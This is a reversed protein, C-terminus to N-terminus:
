DLVIPDGTKARPRFMTQPVPEDQTLVKSRDRGAEMEARTIPKGIQGADDLVQVPVKWRQEWEAIKETNLPDAIPQPLILLTLTENVQDARDRTLKFYSSGPIQIVGGPALHNDSATAPYLLSAKGRTGNAFVARGLVYLYGPCTAEISVRLREGEELPTGAAVRVPTWDLVSDNIRERVDPHDLTLSLRQRWITIGVCAEDGSASPISAAKTGPPRRSLWMNNWVQRTRVDQPSPTQQGLACAAVISYVIPILKRTM